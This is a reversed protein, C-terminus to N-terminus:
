NRIQTRIFHRLAALEDNEDWELAEECVKLAEPLNKEAVLLSAKAKFSQPHDPGVALLISSAIRAMKLDDSAIHILCKNYLAPILTPNLLHAHDYYTLAIKKRNIKLYCEGLQCLLTENSPDKSLKEKLSPIRQELMQVQEAKSLSDPTEGDTQLRGLELTLDRIRNIKSPFLKDLQNLENQLRKYLDSPSIPDPLNMAAITIISSSTADTAPLETFEEKRLTAIKQLLRHIRNAQNIFRNQILAIKENYANKLYDIEEAIQDHDALFLPSFQEIVHM